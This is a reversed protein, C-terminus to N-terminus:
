VGGGTVDAGAAVSAGVRAGVGVAVLTGVGAAVVHWHLDQKKFNDWITRDAWCMAYLM